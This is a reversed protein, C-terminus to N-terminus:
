QTSTVETLFEESMSELVSIEEPLFRQKNNKEFSSKLQSQIQYNVFNPNISALYGSMELNVLDTQLEECFPFYSRHEFIYSKLFRQYKPNQALEFVAKHIVPIASPINKDSIQALLGKVVDFTDWNSSIQTNNSM